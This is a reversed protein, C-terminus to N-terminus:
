KVVRALTLAFIKNVGAKKLTKACENITSGTTYIDDILLIDKNKLNNPNRLSFANKVNKKRKAHSLNTQAETYRIRKLNDYVVPLNFYQGIKKSLILSQNFGREKLKKKHLPVPIICDFKSFSMKGPINSIMLEALVKGLSLNKHYKFKHIAERLKIEYYFISITKNLIPEDKRCLGCRYNQNYLLINDSPFPFGCCPCTPDKIIRISKLCYHCLLFNPAINIKSNCILCKDPFIFKALTKLFSLYM